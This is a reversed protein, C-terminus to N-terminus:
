NLGGTSTNTSIVQNLTYGLPGVCSSYGTDMATLNEWGSPAIGFASLTVPFGSYAASGCYNEQFHLGISAAQSVGLMLAAASVTCAVKKARLNRSNSRLRKM